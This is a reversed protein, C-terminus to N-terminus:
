IKGEMRLNIVPAKVLHVNASPISVKGKTVEIAELIRTFLIAKTFRRTRLDTM